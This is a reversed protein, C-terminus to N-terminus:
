GAGPLGVATLSAVGLLTELWVGEAWIREKWGPLLRDLLMAQAMGTYYFRTEGERAAQRKMQSVEQVWRRDFTAYGKFDPDGDMAPLPEYGPTTHAKRWAALEVYKAVGEEWELQREYDVLAADLGPGSGESAPGYAQRRQARQALFRRALGAAEEDSRAKLARVLLDIEQGWAARMSVDAVWYAEGSAHAREAEELRAPAIQAQYAHFTEHLVGSIQVESPQILLRYPFIPELFPPLVRRFIEILFADTEWKTAMSAAWRDGVRIAFNQPDDSPRRYCAQGELVDGIGSNCCYVEGPVAEWGPPPDEIGVLFSFQRNWLVIPIDAQGWGPWVAEGLTRKLHLTEALRAKDLPDLRELTSPGSPLRRNSLAALASAAGCLLALGAIIL